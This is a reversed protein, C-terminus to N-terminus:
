VAADVGKVWSVSPTEALSLVVRAGSEKAVELAHDLTAAYIRAATEAGIAIALRSKVKGPVPERGFIVLCTKM